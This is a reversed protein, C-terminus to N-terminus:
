HILAPANLQELLADSSLPKAFLYGQAYECNLRSLTAAQDHNVVGEAVVNLGLNHAMAVISAVMNRDREAANIDDVFTKDIKLTQIPFRKLYALSSYGTGFDDLALQIGHQNLETMITIAHEPDDMVVGETIELELAHPSVQEEALITLIRQTLDPQLFQKASLNVAVRGLEHGQELWHRMDRCTQRLVQEGMEIILGTEEALPIFEIPSMMGVGPIQLRALAEVGVYNFNTLSVKPQYVVRLHNNRLAQRLQNEVQLRRVANRNMSENFFQYNHGGKSKAHYMAIDANQLLEQSSQGDNPYVVVGMSAGMVIDHQLIHFSQSLHDLLKTAMETIVNVDSTNELLLVFEDGGVRYLTDHIRGLELIREAVQTLLQDGVDHGLSDNIKKFDDLDLLLLAHQVRKRVLNAHSVQFYSRNPLGTLTDTNALRRLERETQKRETIDSFTAVYHSIHGVDDRIADVTLEIQYFSGDKRVDEVEGHWVGYQGLQRKIQELFEPSYVELQMPRGIVDSRAFGTIRSYSANTEIVNFEADYICVGDSINTISAALMKLREEAEVLPTIDKLTGTMRLPRQQADREVVKGRDLISLWGHETKVRYTVEFFQSHGDLHERLKQQVVPLDMPHINSSDAAVKVRICDIPFAELEHWSNHRHITEQPIDWDWLQDGSGWLSLKLREESERLQQIARHRTRLVFGGAALLALLPVAYFAKAWPSLWFPTAVEVALQRHGQWTQGDYSAQVNFQYRGHDLNTYTARRYQSDTYVWNQDFGDLRYRYQLTLARPAYPAGFEISLPHHARKLYLTETNYLQPRNRPDLQQADVRENAVRLSILEVQWDDQAIAQYSFCSIIVLLLFRKTTLLLLKLRGM